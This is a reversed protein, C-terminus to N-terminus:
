RLSIFAIMGTVCTVETKSANTKCCFFGIHTITIEVFKSRKLTTKNRYLVFLTYSVCFTRLM